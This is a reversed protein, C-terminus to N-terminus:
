IYVGPASPDPDDGQCGLMCMPTVDAVLSKSALPASTDSCSSAIVVMAVIVAALAAFEALHRAPAPAYVPEEQDTRVRSPATTGPAM